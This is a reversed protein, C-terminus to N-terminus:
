PISKSVHAQKASGFARTQVTIERCVIARAWTSADWTIHSDLGNNVLAAALLTKLVLM